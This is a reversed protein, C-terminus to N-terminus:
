ENKQDEPSREQERRWYRIMNGREGGQGRKWGHEERERVGLSQKKKRRGL